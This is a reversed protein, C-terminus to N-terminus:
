IRALGVGEDDDDDDRAGQKLPTTALTFFKAPISEDGGM